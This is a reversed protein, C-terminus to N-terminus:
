NVSRSIEQWYGGNFKLTLIDDSTGVFDVTGLLKINAGNQITTNGNTFTIIIRQNTYGGTFNTITTSGTNAANIFEVGLVTPTASGNTLAIAINSEPSTIVANTATTQYNRSGLGLTADIGKVDNRLYKVNTSNGNNNNADEIGYNNTYAGGSGIITNEKIILSTIPNTQTDISLGATNNGVGMQILNSEAIVNSVVGNAIVLGIRFGSMMNRSIVTNTIGSLQMGVGSNDDRQAQNLSVNGSAIGAFNFARAGYYGIAKNNVASFNIIPRGSSTQAASNIAFTNSLAAGENTFSNNDISINEQLFAGRNQIFATNSPLSGRFLNNSIDFNVNKQTVGSGDDGFTIANGTSMIGKFSCHHISVNWTEGTTTNDLFSIGNENVTDFLSYGIEANYNNGTGAGKIRLGNLFRCNLVKFGDYARCLVGHRNFTNVPSVNNTLFDDKFTSNVVLFNNMTTGGVLTVAGNPLPNGGASITIGDITINDKGSGVFVSNATAYIIATDRFAFITQNSNLNVSGLSYIGDPFYFVGKDGAAIILAQMASTSISSYVFKTNNTTATAVTQMVFSSGSCGTITTRLANNLGSLVSLSGAGYVILEKNIDEVTSCTKSTSNFLNSSAITFGDNLLIGDNKVGGIKVVDIINSLPLSDSTFAKRTKTFPTTIGTGSFKIDYVGDAIYFEYYAVSDATFPNSKITGVDNSYINALTTTNTLYVTVTCNPYTEMAKYSTTPATQIVLGGKEAYGWLKEKASVPIISLFSFFILVIFKKM